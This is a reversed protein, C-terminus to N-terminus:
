WIIYSLILIPIGILVIFWVMGWFLEKMEWEEFKLREKNKSM